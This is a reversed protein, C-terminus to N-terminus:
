AKDKKILRQFRQYIFAKCTKRGRTTTEDYKEGLILNIGDHFIIEDFYDGLGNIKKSNVTEFVDADEGYGDRIFDYITNDSTYATDIVVFQIALAFLVIISIIQKKMIFHSKM